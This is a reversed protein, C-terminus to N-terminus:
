QTYSTENMLTKLVSSHSTCYQEKQELLDMIDLGLGNTFMLLAVSLSPLFFSFSVHTTAICSSVFM